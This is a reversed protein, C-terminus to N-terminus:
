VNGPPGPQMRGYRLAGRTSRADKRRISRVRSKAKWCFENEAEQPRRTLIPEASLLAKSYPHFPRRYVDNSEGIEVMHGLYMVGIRHSIHKVM